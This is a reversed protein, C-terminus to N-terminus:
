LSSVIYGGPLYRKGGAQNEPQSDAWEIIERVEDATLTPYDQKEDYTGDRGLVRGIDPIESGDRIRTDQHNAPQALDKRTYTSRGCRYSTEEYVGDDYTWDELTPEDNPNEPRPHPCDHEIRLRNWLEDTLEKDEEDNEKDDEEDDDSIPPEEEDEYDTDDEQAAEQCALVRKTQGEMEDEDTWERIQPPRPNEDEIWQSEQRPILFAPASWGQSHGCECEKAKDAVAKWACELAHQPIAIWDENVNRWLRLIQAGALKRLNAPAEDERSVLTVALEEEDWAHVFYHKGDNEPLGKIWNAIEQMEERSIWPYIKTVDFTSDGPGVRVPPLPTNVWHTCQSNM